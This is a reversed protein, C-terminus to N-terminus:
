PFSYYTNLYKGQPGQNTAGIIILFNVVGLLKPIKDSIENKSIIRQM